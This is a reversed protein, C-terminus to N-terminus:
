RHLSSRLHQQIEVEAGDALRRNPQLVIVQKGAKKVEDALEAILRSKGTSTM